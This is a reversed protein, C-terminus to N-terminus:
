GQCKVELLDIMLQIKAKRRNGMYERIKLLVTLIDEQKQVSWIYSIKRPRKDKRGTTNSRVCLTGVDFTDQLRRIVDEDTMECHIAFSPHVNGSKHTRYHLSFCGEGELVGAAWAVSDKMM